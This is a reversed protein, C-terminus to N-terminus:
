GAAILATSIRQQVRVIADGVRVRGHQVLQLMAVATFMKGM